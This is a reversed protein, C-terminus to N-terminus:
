AEVKYVRCMAAVGVGNDACWNDHHFFWFRGVKREHTIKLQENKFGPDLSGSMSVYGDCLAFSGSGERDTTQMQDPWAYAFRLYKGNVIVFDGVRPNPDDDWKALRAKAIAEDKADAKVRHMDFVSVFTDRLCSVQM